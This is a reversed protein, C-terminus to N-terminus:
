STPSSVPGGQELWKTCEPTLVRAKAQEYLVLDEETLVDRWRGNTGKFFFGESGGEFIATEPDSAADLEKAKSKVHEFTTHAVIRQLDEPTIDFNASNAMRTVAGAHDTLMDNYHFFHFNPLHRYKWYSATHWQNSWFPYGESEWEFWGRTMWDQWLERPDEPCKPLADGNIDPANMLSMALDTYRSYHNFFSMFVDHADRAVIFYQVEPYYPLGDLPLHSKIFRHGPIAELHPGLQARPIPIFRADPWPTVDGFEPMPDMHGYFMEHLIQQAWTTGAKYSTTVIMDSARPKYEDWRTSDLHHNQYVRTVEPLGERM